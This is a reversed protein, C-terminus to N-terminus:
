DSEKNGNSNEQIKHAKLFDPIEISCTDRKEKIIREIERRLEEDHELRIKMIEDEISSSRAGRQLQGTLSGYKMYLTGGYSYM